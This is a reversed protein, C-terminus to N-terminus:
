INVGTKRWLIKAQEQCQKAIDEEDVQTSRGNEIVVRGDVLVTEVQRGQFTMDFYSLASCPAVPSPSDPKIIIIDAKKGPELSGVQNQLGMARAANGLAMDLVQFIPLLMANANHAKHLLFAYRLYEAIDLTFFDDHGITINLGNQMMYPIRAVGNGGFSNTMPTHAINVKNRALIAVDEDTLDICHAAIVDPGLVGTEELIQPASMGHKEVVFARPIEAIHVQIGVGYENAVQRAREMTPRSNTFATHLGLRGELRGGGKPYKKFFAINEELGQEANAVSINKLIHGGPVRETVEYGVQARIGTELIAKASADLIGPLANPGEVFECVTTVGNKLMKTAAYRTAAYVGEQTTIDELWEWGMKQLMDWFDHLQSFDVPMNHGLVYPMHSHTVIFGPMVLRGTADIAQANPYKAELEATAGIEVISGGSIAVAGGELMQGTLADPAFTLVLGNKILLEAM